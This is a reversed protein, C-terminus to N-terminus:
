GAIRRTTIWTVVPHDDDNLAAGKRLWGERALLRAAQDALSTSRELRAAFEARDIVRDACGDAMAIVQVLPVKLSDKEPWDALKHWLERWTCFPAPDDDIGVDDADYLTGGQPVPDDIRHHPLSM